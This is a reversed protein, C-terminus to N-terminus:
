DLNRTLALNVVIKTGEQKLELKKEKSNKENKM